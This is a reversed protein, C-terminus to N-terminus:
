NKRARNIIEARYIEEKLKEVVRSKYPFKKNEKMKEKRTNRKDM